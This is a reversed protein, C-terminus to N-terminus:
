MAQKGKEREMEEQERYRDVLTERMKEFIRTSRDMDIKGSEVMSCLGLRMAYLAHLADDQPHKELLEHWQQWSVADKCYNDPENGTDALSTTSVLLILGIISIIIAKM